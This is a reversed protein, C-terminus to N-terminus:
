AADFVSLHHGEVEGAACAMNAIVDRALGNGVGHRRLSFIRAYATSALVRLFGRKEEMQAIDDVLILVLLIWFPLVHLLKEIILEVLSVFVVRPFNEGDWSIVVAFYFVILSPVGDIMEHLIETGRIPM